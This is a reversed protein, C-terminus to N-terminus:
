WTIGAACPGLHLAIPQARPVREGGIGTLPLGVAVTLLTGGAIMIPGAVMAGSKEVLAGYATVLTGSMFVNAGLIAAVVGLAYLGPSARRTGDDCAGDAINYYCLDNIKCESSQLCDSPRTAVCEGDLSGCLGHRRCDETYLCPDHWTPTQAAASPAALLGCLGMFASAFRM